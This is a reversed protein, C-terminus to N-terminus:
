SLAKAWWGVDRVHKPNCANVTLRRHEAFLDNLDDLKINDAELETEEMYCLGDESQCRVRIKVLWKRPIMRAIKFFEFGRKIGLVDRTVIDYVPKGEANTEVVWSEWTELTCNRTAIRLKNWANSKRRIRDKNM